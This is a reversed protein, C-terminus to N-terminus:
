CNGTYITHAMINQHPIQRELLKM